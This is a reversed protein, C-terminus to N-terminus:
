QLLKRNQCGLAMNEARHQQCRFPHISGNGTRILPDAGKQLAQATVEIKAFRM